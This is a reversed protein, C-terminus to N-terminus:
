EVTKPVIIGQENRVAANRLLMERDCSPQVIDERTVNQLRQAPATEASEDWQMLTDVMQLIETLDKQIECLEDERPSLMSLSAVHAIEKKEIQM